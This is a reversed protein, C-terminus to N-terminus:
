IPNRPSQNAQYIVELTLHRPSVSYGVLAGLIANFCGVGIACGGTTCQLGSLSVGWIFGGIAGIVAGAPKRHRRELAIELIDDRVVVETKVPRSGRTRLLLQSQSAGEVVREEFSGDVYTLVIKTGASMQQVRSWGTSAHSPPQSSLLLALLVHSM